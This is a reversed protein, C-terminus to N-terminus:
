LLRCVLHEPTEHARLHTYSVTGIWFVFDTIYFAWFVPNNIGTMGFGMYMQYAWTGLGMAVGCGLFGVLLYFRWSTKILPRLLDATMERDSVLAVPATGQTM